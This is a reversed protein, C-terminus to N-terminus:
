AFMATEGRVVMGLQDYVEARRALARQWADRKLVADGKRYYFPEQHYRKADDMWSFVLERKLVDKKWRRSHNKSIGNVGTKNHKHVKRNRANSRPTASRLNRRRNDSRHGDIHDTLPFGTALVHFFVNRGTDPDPGCIYGYPSRSWSIRQVLELDMEDAEFTGGHKGHVEVEFFRETQNDILRYRNRTLGMDDSARKVIEWAVQSARERGGYKSFIFSGLYQHNLINSQVRDRSKDHQVWGAFKGGQWVGPEM